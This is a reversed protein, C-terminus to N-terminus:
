RGAYILRNGECYGFVLADSTNVRRHVWLWPSKDATSACRRGLGREGALSTVAIWANPWSVGSAGPGQRVRDAPSASGGSASRLPHVPYTLRERATLSAIALVSGCSKVVTKAFGPHSRFIRMSSELFLRVWM